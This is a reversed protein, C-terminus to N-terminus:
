ILFTPIKSYQLQPKIKNAVFKGTKGYYAYTGIALKIYLQV